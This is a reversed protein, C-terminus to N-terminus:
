LLGTIATGSNKEVEDDIANELMNFKGHILRDNSAASDAKPACRDVYFFFM